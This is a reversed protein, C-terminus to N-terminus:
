KICHTNGKTNLRSCMLSYLRRDNTYNIDLYLLKEVSVKVIHSEDENQLWNYDNVLVWTAGNEFPKWLVILKDCNMM